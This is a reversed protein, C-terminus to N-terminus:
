YIVDSARVLVSRPVALGLAKATKMNIVLEFKTPLEIPLEGPKAGKLIKQVCTAARRAVAAQDAGYSALNGVETLARATSLVPVQNALGLEAVRAGNGLFFPIAQYWYRTRGHPTSRPSHM